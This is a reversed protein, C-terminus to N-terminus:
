RVALQKIQKLHILIQEVDAWPHPSYGRVECEFEIDHDFIVLSGNDNRIGAHISEALRRARLKAEGEGWGSDKYDDDWVITASHGDIHDHMSIEIYREDVDGYEGKECLFGEVSGYTSEIYEVDIRDKKHAAVFSKAAEIITAM